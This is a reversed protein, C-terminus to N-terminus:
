AAVSGSGAQRAASPSSVPMGANAFSLLRLMVGMKFADTPCSRDLVGPQFQRSKPTGETQLRSSDGWGDGM